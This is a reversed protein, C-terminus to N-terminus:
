SHHVLCKHWAALKKSLERHAFSLTTLFVNPGLLSRMDTNKKGHTSLLSVRRKLDRNMSKEKKDFYRKEAESWDDPSVRSRFLSKWSDSVVKKNLRDM